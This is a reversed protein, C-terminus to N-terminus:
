LTNKLEKKRNVRLIDLLALVNVWSDSAGSPWRNRGRWRKAYKSRTNASSSVSRATLRKEMRCDHKSILGQLVVIQSNLKVGREVKTCATSISEAWTSSFGLLGATSKHSDHWWVDWQISCRRVWWRQLHSISDTVNCCSKQISDKRLDTVLQNLPHQFLEESRHGEEPGHHTTWHTNSSPWDAVGDVAHYYTKWTKIKIALEKLRDDVSWRMGSESEFM